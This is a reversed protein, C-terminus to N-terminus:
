TSSKAINRSDSSEMYILDEPVVTPKGKSDIGLSYVLYYSTETKIVKDYCSYPLTCKVPFRGKRDNENIRSENSFYQITCGQRLQQTEKDTFSFRRANILHIQVKNGQNSM